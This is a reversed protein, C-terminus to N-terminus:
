RAPRRLLSLALVLPARRQWPWTRLSAALRRSAKAYEGRAYAEYGFWNHMDAVLRRGPRGLPGIAEARASLKEIVRFRNEDMRTRDRSMGERHWRYTALVAPLYRAEAVLALRLWLDWDELATLAEDFRGVSELVSRRVLPAMGPIFNGRVLEQFLRGDLARSRYDFRESALRAEGTLEDVIRVDCYSWGIGPDADLIRAQQELKTPALLDDADLFGVYDGAARALGANRAASLGRNAQRLAVIRDGYRQLVAPTEDTSGDDVVVVRLGPLTQALASDIAEPLFRAHDHTAIILTARTAM